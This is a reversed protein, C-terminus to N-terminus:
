TKSNKKEYNDKANEIAARDDISIAQYRKQLQKKRRKKLSKETTRNQENNM